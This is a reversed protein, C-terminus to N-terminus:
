KVVSQFDRWYSHQFYQMQEAKSEISCRNAIGVDCDIRLVQFAGQPANGHSLLVAKKTLYFEAGRM